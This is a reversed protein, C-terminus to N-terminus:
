MLTYLLNQVISCWKWNTIPIIIRMGHVRKWVFAIFLCTCRDLEHLVFKLKVGFDWFWDSWYNIDILVFFRLLADKNQIWTPGGSNCDKFYSPITSLYYLGIWRCIHNDLLYPWWTMHCSIELNLHHCPGLCLVLVLSARQWLCDLITVFASVSVLISKCVSM